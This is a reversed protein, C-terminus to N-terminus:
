PPLAFGQTHSCVKEPIAAQENSTEEVSMPEEQNGSALKIPLVDPFQFFLLKRDEQLFSSVKDNLLYNTNLCLSFTTLRLLDNRGDWGLYGFAVSFFVVTSLELVNKCKRTTIYLDAKFFGRRKCSLALEQSNGILPSWAWTILKLLSHQFLYTLHSLLVFGKVTFYQWRPLSDLYIFVRTTTDFWSNKNLTTLGGSM